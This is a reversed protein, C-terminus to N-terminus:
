SQKQSGLVPDWFIWCRSRGPEILPCSGCCNGGARTLSCRYGARSMGGFGWSMGM